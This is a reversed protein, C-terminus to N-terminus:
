QNYKPKDLSAVSCLTITSFFFCLATHIESHVANQFGIADPVQAVIGLSFITVKLQESVGVNELKRQKHQQEPPHSHNSVCGKTEEPLLSDYHHAHPDTNM